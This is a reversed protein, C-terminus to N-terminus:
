KKVLYGGGHCRFRRWVRRCRFWGGFWKFRGRHSQLVLFETQRRRRGHHDDPEIMTLNDVVDIEKLFPPSGVEEDWLLSRVVGKHGHTWLKHLCWPADPVSTNMNSLMAIDGRVSGLWFASFFVVYHFVWENSGTFVVLNPKSTKTSKATILYDTVWTRRQHLVPSRIDLSM